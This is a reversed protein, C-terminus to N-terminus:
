PAGSREVSLGGCVMAGQRSYYCAPATRQLERPAVSVSDQRYLRGARCVVGWTALSDLWGARPGVPDEPAPRGSVTDGVLYEDYSFTCGGASTTGGAVWRAPAAQGPGGTDRVFATVPHPNEPQYMGMDPGYQTHLVRTTDFYAFEFQRGWAFRRPTGDAVNYVIRYRGLAAEPISLHVPRRRNWSLFAGLALLEAALLAGGILATRRLRPRHELSAPRVLGFLAIPVIAIAVLAGLTLLSPYLGVFVAAAAVLLIGAYRVRSRVHM